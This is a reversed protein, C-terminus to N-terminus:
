ASIPFEDPADSDSVPPGSPSTSNGQATSGPPPNAFSTESQPNAVNSDTGGRSEAISELIVGPEEPQLYDPQRLEDSTFQDAFQELFARDEELGAAPPLISQSNQPAANSEDREREEENLTAQLFEQHGGHDGQAETAPTFIGGRENNVQRREGAGTPASSFGLSGWEGAPQRANSWDAGNPYDQVEEANPRRDIDAQLGSPDSFGRLVSEPPDTASSNTASRAAAGPSM